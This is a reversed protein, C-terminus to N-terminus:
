QFYVASAAGFMFLLYGILLDFKESFKFFCAFNGSFSFDRFVTLSVESIGKTPHALMPKVPVGPTLKCYEVSEMVGHKRIMAIIHEFNPYECFMTKVAEAADDKAGSM